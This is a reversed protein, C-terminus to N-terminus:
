NWRAALVRGCVNTVYFDMSIQALEVRILSKVRDLRERAAADDPNEKLEALLEAGCALLRGLHPTM